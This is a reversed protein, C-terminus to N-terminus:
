LITISGEYNGSPTYDDFVAYFFIQQTEGPELIINDTEQGLYNLVQLDFGNSENDSVLFTVQYSNQRDASLTLNHSQIYENGGVVGTLDWIITNEELPSYDYDLLNDATENITIVGLFSLLGAGAILCASIVVIGVIPIAIGKKARIRMKRKHRDRAEYKGKSLLLNDVLSNIDKM